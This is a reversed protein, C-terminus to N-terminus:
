KEKRAKALSTGTRGYCRLFSCISALFLGFRPMAHRVPRRRAVRAYFGYLHLSEPHLARDANKCVRISLLTTGNATSLLGSPPYVALNVALYDNVNCKVGPGKCTGKSAKAHIVKRPVDALSFLLGIGESM